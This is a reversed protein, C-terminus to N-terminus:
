AMDDYTIGLCTCISFSIKHCLKSTHFGANAGFKYETERIPNRESKWKKIPNKKLVNFRIHIKLRVFPLVFLIHM